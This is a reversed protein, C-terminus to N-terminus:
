KRKQPQDNKTPQKQQKQEPDFRDRDRVELDHEVAHEHAAWMSHDPLSM